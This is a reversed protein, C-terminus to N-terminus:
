APQHIQLGASAAANLLRTDASVFILPALNAEILRANSDMASALQVADYARLPYVELLDQARDIIRNTFSVVRYERRVHRTVLQRINRAEEGTVTGERKLRSIGSIVEVPTIQSIFVRHGSGPVAVSVVWPTGTEIVYRKILASTDFFYESM